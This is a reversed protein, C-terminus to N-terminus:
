QRMLDKGIKGFLADASKPHTIDIGKQNLEDVAPEMIDLEEKGLIGGEGAHPQTSRRPRRGPM